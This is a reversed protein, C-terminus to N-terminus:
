KTYTHMLIKGQIQNDIFKEITRYGAESISNYDISNELIGLIREYMEKHDNKEVIIGTRMHSIIDKVGEVEYCVVPLKAAMAESLVVPMGEYRSTLIFLDAAFYYKAIDNQNGILKVYRSLNYELIERELRKREIGEGVILFCFKEYRKKLLDAIKIVDEFGKQPSLRGVCLITFIGEQLNLSNRITPKSIERWESKMIKEGSFITPLIIIKELPVNKKQHIYEKVESSVCIFQSTTNVIKKELYLVIKKRWSEVLHQTHVHKVKTLKFKLLVQVSMAMKSEHTHIVNPKYLEVFNKIMVLRKLFSIRSKYKVVQVRKDIYEKFSEEVFDPVLLTVDHNLVALNNAYEIQVREAGGFALADSVQLIKM